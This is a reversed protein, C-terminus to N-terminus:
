DYSDTAANLFAWHIAVEGQIDYESVWVKLDDTNLLKIGAPPGKEPDLLEKLEKTLRKVAISSM